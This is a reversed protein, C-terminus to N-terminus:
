LSHLSRPTPKEGLTSPLRNLAIISGGIGLLIGLVLIFLLIILVPFYPAPILSVAIRYIVYIMIFAVASGILGQFAGQCIFPFRVAFRSAGVLEMIEIEQARRTISNEVTQFAIFIVSGAVILLILINLLVTTKVAQNLQELLEKGSWVETVGPLRLLKEEIQNLQKGTAYEPYLSIRISAPIPETGIANVLVTDERLDRRLEELAEAKSVFRVAAIGSINAVRQLLSVPDAAVEDSVFAFVEAHSAASRALKLINITLMLFVATILLCISMVVGALLFQNLNRRITRFTESLLYSISM